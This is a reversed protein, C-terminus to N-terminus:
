LVGPEKSPAARAATPASVFLGRNQQFYVVGSAVTIAAVVLALAYVTASYGHEFASLRDPAWRPLWDRVAAWGVLTIFIAAMQWATKHKGWTGAAITRGNREALARLGTVLFERTLILVVIWAPMLSRHLGPARLEVFSVFAAATLVKDALPDLLTGLPSIGYRGRALRGDLADTLSAVAFVLLAATAGFPPQLFLLCILAAALVIRSASLLNPLNKM